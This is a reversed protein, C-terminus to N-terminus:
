RMGGYGRHYYPYPRYDQYPHYARYVPRGPIVVVPRPAALVPPGLVPVPVPVFVCGAAGLSAALLMAAVLRGSRARREM